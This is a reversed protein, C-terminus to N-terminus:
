PTATYSWCKVCFTAGPTQPWLGLILIAACRTPSMGLGGKLTWRLLMQHVISPRLVCLAGNVAKKPREAQGFFPYDYLRFSTNM